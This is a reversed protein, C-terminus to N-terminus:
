VLLGLHHETRGRYLGVGNRRSSRGGKEFYKQSIIMCIHYQVMCIFHLYIQVRRKTLNTKYINLSSFGNKQIIAM